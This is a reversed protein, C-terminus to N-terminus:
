SLEPVPSPWHTSFPSSRPAAVFREVHDLVRGLRVPDSWASADAAHVLAVLDPGLVAAAADPSAARDIGHHALLADDILTVLTRQVASSGDLTNGDFIQRRLVRVRADSGRATGGVDAHGRWDLPAALDSVDLVLWLVSAIATVIAALAVVAPRMELLALATVAALWGGGVVATRWRWPTRQASM